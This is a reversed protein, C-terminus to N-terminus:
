FFSRIQFVLAGRISAHSRWIKLYNVGVNQSGLHNVGRIKLDQSRSMISAKLGWIISVGLFLSSLTKLGLTHTAWTLSIKLFTIREFKNSLFVSLCYTTNALFLKPVFMDFILISRKYTNQNCMPHSQPRYSTFIRKVCVSFEWILKESLVFCQAEHIVFHMIWATVYPIIYDYWRTCWEWVASIFMRSAM